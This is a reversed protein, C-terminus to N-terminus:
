CSWRDIKAYHSIDLSTTRSVETETELASSVMKTRDQNQDQSALYRELGESAVLNQDVSHTFGVDRRVVPPAENQYEHYRDQDRDQLIPRSYQWFWYMIQSNTKTIEISFFRCNRFNNATHVQTTLAARALSWLMCPWRRKRAAADTILMEIGEFETHSRSNYVTTYHLHFCTTTVKVNLSSKRHSMCVTRKLLCNSLQRCDSCDTERAHEFLMNM